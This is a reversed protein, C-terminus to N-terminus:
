EFIIEKQFVLRAGGMSLNDTTNANLSAGVTSKDIVGHFSGKLCPVPCPKITFVVSGAKGWEYTAEGLELARPMFFQSGKFERL